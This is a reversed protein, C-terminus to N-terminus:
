YHTSRPIASPFGQVCMHTHMHTRARGCLDAAYAQQAANAQEAPGNPKQVLKQISGVLAVVKPSDSDSLEKMARLAADNFAAQDISQLPRNINGSHARAVGWWCVACSPSLVTAHAFNRQAEHQNFNWEQAVGQAFLGSAEALEIMIGGQLGSAATISSGYMGLVPPAM